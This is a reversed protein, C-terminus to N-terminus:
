NMVKFKMKKGQSTQHIFKNGSTQLQRVWHTLLNREQNMQTHTVLM